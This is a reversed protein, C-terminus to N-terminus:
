RWPKSESRHKEFNAVFRDTIARSGSIVVVNEGNAHQAARTFNYSGTIVTAQPEGGDLIVVKDHAAAHGADLWVRAGARDLAKLHPHGGNAHQNADGIVEVDVGRKRAALLANAIARDTLLYAQVQVSRKARGIRAVILGAIDDGPTFAVEIRATRANRSPALGFADFACTFAIAACISAFRNM